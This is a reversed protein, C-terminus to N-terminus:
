RDFVSATHIPTYRMVTLHRHAFLRMLRWPEVLIACVSVRRRRFRQQTTAFNIYRRKIVEVDDARFGGGAATVSGTHQLVGIIFGGDAIRGEGATGGAWMGKGVNRHRHGARARSTLYSHRNVRRPGKPDRRGRLDIRKERFVRCFLRM